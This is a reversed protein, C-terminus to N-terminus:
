IRKQIIHLTHIRFLMEFSKSIAILYTLMTDLKVDNGKGLYLSRNGMADKLKCLPLADCNYRDDPSDLAMRLCFFRAEM